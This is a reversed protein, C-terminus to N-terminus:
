KTLVYERLAPTVELHHGSITLNMPVGKAPPSPLPFPIRPTPSPHRRSTTSGLTGGNRRHSLRTVGFSVRSVKQCQTLRQSGPFGRCSAPKAGFGCRHRGSAASHESLEGATDHRRERKPPSGKSTKAAALRLSTICDSAARQGAQRRRAKREGGARRERALDFLPCRGMQEDAGVLAPHVVQRRAAEYGGCRAPAPAPLRQDDDAPRPSAGAVGGSVTAAKRSAKRGPAPGCRACRWRRGPAHEPPRLACPRAPLCPGTPSIAGRRARASLTREASLKTSRPSAAAPM